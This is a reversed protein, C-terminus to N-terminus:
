AMVEEYPLLLDGLSSESITLVQWRDESLTDMDPLENCFVIIRAPDRWEDRYKYRKDYIYGNKLQEIASWMGRKVKASESRPLDVVYGACPKELAFAMIDMASDMQPVYQAQHTAQMYKAFYTKGHNGIPDYVVCVTREDQHKFLEELQAQWDRLELCQYKALAGEWSCYYKGGKKCYEFNRVHTKTFNCGKGKRVGFQNLLTALEKGVKFKFRCQWHRYGGEGTEDGIVFMDCHQKGLDILEDKTWMDQPFTGDWWKVDTM